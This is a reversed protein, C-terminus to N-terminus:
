PINYSFNRQGSSRESQYLTPVQAPSWTFTGGGVFYQDAQYDVGNHTLAPGGANINLEFTEVVPDTVNITLTGSDTQGDGDTVTLSAEYSGAATYTHVPDAETSTGGDGFDWSYSTIGVDDTSNSGTFSVELPLDGGVVDSEAVAVPPASTTVATVTITVTDNDTQGDADTVTLIADYSGAATYTHMPDAETSTGGDGFDWSYSTIGVDDTSNSGTFNVDLPLDGSLPDAVVIAVPPTSTAVAGSIRIASIKPQDVGGDAALASLYLNVQGDTVTVPFSKVTPTEPGVDATIDYNDMVLTGEL